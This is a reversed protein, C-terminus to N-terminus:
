KVRSIQVVPHVTIPVTPRISPEGQAQPPPLKGSKEAAELDALRWMPGGIRMPAPLKGSRLWRHLTSATISYRGMVEKRRLRALDLLLAELRNLRADLAQLSVQSCPRGPYNITSLGSSQCPAAHPASFKHAM